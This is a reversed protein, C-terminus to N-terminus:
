STSVLAGNQAATHCEVNNVKSVVGIRTMKGIITAMSAARTERPWHNKRSANKAGYTTGDEITQRIKAKMYVGSVPSMVWAKPQNPRLAGFKRPRSLPPQTPTTSSVTHHVKPTLKM